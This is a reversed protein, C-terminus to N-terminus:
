MAGGTLMQGADLLAQGLQQLATDGAAAATTENGLEVLTMGVANGDIPTTQLQTELTRLGEVVGAAEPMGELKTIWANINDIAAPVALQTLGGAQQAADLTAQATVDSTPEMPMPEPTVPDVVVPDTVVPEPESECAALPLVFALALISLRTTM